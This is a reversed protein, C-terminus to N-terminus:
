IRLLKIIRWVLVLCIGLILSHLIGQILSPDYLRALVLFPTPLLNYLLSLPSLLSITMSKDDYLLPILFALYAWAWVLKSLNVHFISLLVLFPMIWLLWQIHFHITSFTLLLVAVLYYWLNNVSKNTDMLSYFFLASLAVVGVMLAEGFGIEIGPFALRTTLSSVLAANVFATSWFPLVTLVITGLFAGIMLILSKFNKIFIMIFPLFLIPYQKFGVALGLTLGGMIFKDKQLLLLAALSLTVPIIDINSFIYIISISLPNFLWLIFAKRKQANTDLFKFLLFPVALDFILYPLKMIFLYRFTGIRETVEASADSLWSYFDSGLMPSVAM